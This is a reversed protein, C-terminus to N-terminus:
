QCVLIKDENLRPELDSQCIGLEVDDNIKFGRPCAPENKEGCHNQGCFKSGGQPCQFDVVEYWGYRCSECRSEGITECDKSVQQCRIATGNSFRDSLKGLNKNNMYDFTDDNLKVFKLGPMLSKTTLSQYKQHINGEDINPLELKIVSMKNKYKFNFILRFNQYNLKLNDLGSVKIVDKSNEDLEKSDDPCQIRNKFEIVHFLSKKEKYAVSYYFCNIKSSIGGESPLMIGMILQEIGPPRTIEQHNYKLDIIKNGYIWESSLIWDLEEISHEDSKKISCSIGLFLFTFILSLFFPPRKM